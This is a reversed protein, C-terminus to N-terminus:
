APWSAVVPPMPLRTYVWIDPPGATRTDGVPAMEAVPGRTTPACGALPVTVSESPSVPLQDNVSVAVLVVSVVVGAM